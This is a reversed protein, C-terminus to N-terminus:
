KGNVIYCMKLIEPYNQEYQKIMTIVLETAPRWAYQKLNFDAMDFFVVLQRAKPGHIKSQEYGAKMFRELLMVVYRQFDFRTVCHLMGYIDFNYFPCVIM